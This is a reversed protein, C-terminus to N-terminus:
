HESGASLAEAIAALRAPDLIRCNRRHRRIVGEQDLQRLSRCVTELSLGLYCGIGELSMPLTLNGGAAGRREALELLFGAVRDRANKHKLILMHRQLRAIHDSTLSFLQHQFAPNHHSLRRIQELPLTRLQTRELAMADGGHRDDGLQQLGLVDGEFFLGVVLEDGDPTVRSLKMAGTEILYLARRGEPDPPLCEGAALKLVQGQGALTSLNTIADERPAPATPLPAPHLRPIFSEM